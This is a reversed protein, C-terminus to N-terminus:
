RQNLADAEAAKKKRLRSSTTQLLRTLRSPGNRAELAHGARSLAWAVMPGGISVLLWLRVRRTLLVWM